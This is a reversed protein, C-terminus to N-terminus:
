KLIKNKLIKFYENPSMEPNYKLDPFVEMFLGNNSSILRKRLHENKRSELVNYQIKLPQIEIEEQKRKQGRTEVMKCIPNHHM